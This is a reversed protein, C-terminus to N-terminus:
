TAEVDVGWDALLEYLRASDAWLGILGRSPSQLVDRAVTAREAESAGPGLRDLVEIRWRTLKGPVRRLREILEDLETLKAAQRRAYPQGDRAVPTVPLAPPLVSPRRVGAVEAGAAFLSAGPLLVDILAEATARSWPVSPRSATIRATDAIVARDGRLLLLRDLGLQAAAGAVVRV